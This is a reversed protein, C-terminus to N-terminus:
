LCRVCPVNGMAFVLSRVRYGLSPVDGMDVWWVLKGSLIICGPANDWALWLKYLYIGYDSNVSGLM